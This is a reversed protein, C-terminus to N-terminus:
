KVPWSDIISGCKTCVLVEEKRYLNDLAIGNTVQPMNPIEFTKAVVNDYRHVGFVQCNQMWHWCYQVIMVMIAAVILTILFMLQGNNILENM